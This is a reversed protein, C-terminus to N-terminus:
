IARFIAPPNEGDFRYEGETLMWYMLAGAALVDVPPSNGVFEDSENRTVVEPSVNHPTSVM